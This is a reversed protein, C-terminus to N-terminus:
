GRPLCILTSALAILRMASLLMAYDVEEVKDDPIVVTDVMLHRTDSM